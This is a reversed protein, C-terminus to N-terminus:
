CARLKISVFLACKLLSDISKIHKPVHHFSRKSVGDVTIEEDLHTQTYAHTCGVHNYSQMKTHKHFYM